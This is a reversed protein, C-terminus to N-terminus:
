SLSFSLRHAGCLVAPCLQVAEQMGDKSCMLLPAPLRGLQLRLVAGLHLALEAAQHPSTAGLCRLQTQVAWAPARCM